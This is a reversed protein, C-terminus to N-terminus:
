GVSVGSHDTADWEVDLMIKRVNVTATYVDM